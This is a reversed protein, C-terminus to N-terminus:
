RATGNQPRLAPLLPRPPCSAGLPMGTPLTLAGNPTRTTGPPTVATRLLAGDRAPTDCGANRTGRRTKQADRANRTGRCTKRTDCAGRHTKRTDCANRADRGRTRQVGPREGSGATAGAAAESREARGHPAAAARRAPLPRPPPAPPPAPPPGSPALPPEFTFHQPPSPRVGGPFAAPHGWGACGTAAAAAAAAAM